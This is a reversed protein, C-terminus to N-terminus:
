SAERQFITASLLKLPLDFGAVSESHGLALYGGVSLYNCLQSIVKEQIKPEFYILINRCFIVDFKFDFPYKTDLINLRSFEVRDRLHKAIRVENQSAELSRLLYKKRLEMPVPEIMAHSYVARRGEDVMRYSIDSARIDYSFKHQREAFEECTMALTYPEAGNSCGASWIRLPRKIGCGNQILQPLAQKILFQFHHTERFFDTKNTTLADIIFPEEHVMAGENFLFNAYDTLNSYGLSSFHKRLRGEVFSRKSLPMKIGTVQQIHSALRQFNVESM